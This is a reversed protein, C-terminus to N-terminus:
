GRGFIDGYATYITLMLVPVLVIWGLGFPISAVIAAVIYVIVYLVFAVINKLSAAFSAKLADIPPMDQLVVLAPAFWFAMGLVAGLVFCVVVALFGAGMAALVGGAGHSGGGAVAGMVAGFGLLGAVIGIVVVGALLLAGLVLLPNLRTQFATFLDGVALTGGGELKRAALMWSGTFVPALLASALAGLLPIFGLVIFIVLMVLGLVIWLGANKMFLAWAETWWAVGRGPDVGRPAASNGFTNDM